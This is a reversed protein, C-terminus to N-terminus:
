GSTEDVVEVEYYGEIYAMWLGAAEPGYMLEMDYGMMCYSPVSVGVDLRLGIGMADWQFAWQKGEITPVPKAPVEKTGDIYATMLDAYYQFQEQLDYKKFYYNGEADKWSVALVIAPAPEGQYNNYYNYSSEGAETWTMTKWSGYVGAWVNGAM